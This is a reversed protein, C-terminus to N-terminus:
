LEDPVVLAVVQRWGPRPLGSGSFPAQVWYVTTFPKHGNYNSFKRTTIRLANLSALAELGYAQGSDTGAARDFGTTAIVGACEIELLLRGPAPQDACRHLLADTTLRGAVRGPRHNEPGANATQINTFFFFLSIISRRTM